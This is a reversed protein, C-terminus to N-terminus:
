ILFLFNFFINKFFKRVNRLYSDTRVFEWGNKAEPRQVYLFELFECTGSIREFNFQHCTSDVLCHRACTSWDASYISKTPTQKLAKDIEVFSFNANYRCGQLKLVHTSALKLGLIYRFLLLVVYCVSYSRHYFRIVNCQVSLHKIIWKKNLSALKSHIQQRLVDREEKDKKFITWYCVAIFIVNKFYASNITSHQSCYLM